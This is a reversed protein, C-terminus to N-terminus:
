EYYFNGGALKFGSKAILRDARKDGSSVCLGIISAGEKKAWKVYRNILARGDGSECYFCHDTAARSKSIELQTISAALVGVVEGQHTSVWVRSRQNSLYRHVARRLLAADVPVSGYPCLNWAKEVLKILANADSFKARRVM